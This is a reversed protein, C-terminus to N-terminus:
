ERSCRALHSRASMQRSGRPHFVGYSAAPYKVASDNYVRVIFLVIAKALFMEGVEFPRNIGFM